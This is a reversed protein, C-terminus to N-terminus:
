LMRQHSELGNGQKKIYRTLTNLNSLNKFYQLHSDILKLTKPYIKADKMIDL